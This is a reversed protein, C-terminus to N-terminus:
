LTTKGDTAELYRIAARLMSTSDKFRGIAANCPNCLLGRVKGTDHNHDVALTLKLADQHTGCIACCGAQAAFM